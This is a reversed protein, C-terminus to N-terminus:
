GPMECKDTWKTWRWFLRRTNPSHGERWNVCSHTRPSLFASLGTMARCEVRNAYLGSAPPRSHNHLAHEKPTRAQLLPGANSLAVANPGLTVVQDLESSHHGWADKTERGLECSESRTIWIFRSSKVKTPECQINLCLSSIFLYKGFEKM